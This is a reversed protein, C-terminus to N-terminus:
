FRLTDRYKDHSLVILEDTIKIVQWSDLTDNVTILINSGDLGKLIGQPNESEIVIGDLHYRDSVKPPAVPKEPQPKGKAPTEIATEAPKPKVFPNLKPKKYDIDPAQTKESIKESTSGKRVQFYESESKFLNLNNIWIAAAVIILVALLIWKIKDSKM